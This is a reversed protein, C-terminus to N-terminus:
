FTPFLALTAWFHSIVSKTWITRLLAIKSFYHSKTHNKGLLAPDCGCVKGSARGLLGAITLPEIWCMILVFFDLNLSVTMLAGGFIFMFVFDASRGRFSGEELM